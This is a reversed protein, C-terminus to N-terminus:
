VSSVSYVCVCVCVCMGKDVKNVVVPHSGKLQFGLQEKKLDLKISVECGRKVIIELSAEMQKHSDIASMCQYYPSTANNIYQGGIGIIELGVTLGVAEAASGCDVAAIRCDDM